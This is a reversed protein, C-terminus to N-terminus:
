DISEALFSPHGKAIASNNIYILLDEFTTCQNRDILNAIRTANIIAQKISTQELLIASDSLLIRIVPISPNTLDIYVGSGLNFSSYLNSTYEELLINNM